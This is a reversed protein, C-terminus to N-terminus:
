ATTEDTQRYTQLEELPPIRKLTRVDVYLFRGPVSPGQLGKADCWGCYGEKVAFPGAVFTLGLLTTGGCCFTPRVVQVLDGVNIQDTM